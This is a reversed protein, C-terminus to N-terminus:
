LSSYLKCDPSPGPESPGHRRDSAYLQTIYVGRHQVGCDPGICQFSDFAVPRITVPSIMGESWLGRFSWNPAKDSSTEAARNAASGTPMLEPPLVSAYSGSASVMRGRSRSAWLASSTWTM